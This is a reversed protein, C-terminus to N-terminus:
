RVIYRVIKMTAFNQAKNVPDYLTMFRFTTTKILKSNPDNSDVLPKNEYLNIWDNENDISGTTINITSYGFFKSYYDKAQVDTELLKALAKLKYEDVCYMGSNLKDCSIEPLSTAYKSLKIADLDRSYDIEKKTSVYSAKSFFVLILIVILMLVVVIMMTEGFHMQAKKTIKKLNM